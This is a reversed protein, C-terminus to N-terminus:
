ARRFKFHRGVIQNGYRAPHKLKNIFTVSRPVGAGSLPIALAINIGPRDPDFEVVRSVAGEALRHHYSKFSQQSIDHASPSNRRLSHDGMGIQSNSALQIGAGSKIPFPKRQVPKRNPWLGAAGAAGVSIHEGLCRSIKTIWHDRTQFRM